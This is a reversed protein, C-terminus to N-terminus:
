SDEQPKGEQQTKIIFEQIAKELHPFKNKYIIRRDIINYIWYMKTINKQSLYKVIDWNDEIFFDFNNKRIMKEKFLHPQENDKNVNITTFVNKLRHKDLWDQLDKDLFRYRGTVLHAEIYGEEVAKKLLTVGKAPFVSSKHLIVWFVKQWWYKPYYFKMERVGFLKRKAYVIPFRAIRLPNYAIVGDFDFGVKIKNNM